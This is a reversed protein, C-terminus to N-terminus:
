LQNNVQVAKGLLCWQLLTSYSELNDILIASSYFSEGYYQPTFWPMVAIPSTILFALRPCFPPARSFNMM